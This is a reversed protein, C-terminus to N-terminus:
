SQMFVAMPVRDWHYESNTMLLLRNITNDQIGEAPTALQMKVTNTAINRKALATLAKAHIQGFRAVLGAEFNPRPARHQLGTLYRRAEGMLNVYPAFTAEITLRLVDLEDPPFAFTAQEVRNTFLKLGGHPDIGRRLQADLIESWRQAADTVIIAGTAQALYMAMEFNPEMKMLSFQGGDEAGELCDPQLSILPDSVKMAEIAQAATEATEGALDMGRELAMRVLADAPALLQGRKMDAEVVQSTRDNPDLRPPRAASRRQAMRMTQDRLHHDFHGPNPVLNVLGLDVLPMLTFLLALDKLVEQRYIRPNEVPSYEKRITGAHLFPHAIILEGFYLGAGVAFQNILEPHITGTFVARARGDPKPLLQLLDTDLPWFATFVSYLRSIREDTLNRRVDNWTGGPKLKLIDHAARWLALNRERISLETWSPRLHTPVSACCHKYPRDSGCGCAQGPKVIRAPKQLGEFPKETRGFEDQYLVQGDAMKAFLEGGFNWLGDEPPRLVEGLKPWDKAAVPEAQLWAEQGAAIYRRARAKLIANVRGVEVDTLKRSHIFTDTRVMSNRFNRAFTRKQLPDSEPHKAYELNTLILCFDRNLPFITQSGKLTISPDHDADPGVMPNYVTVPNDTVIFKVGADQASVIERVGETWITCNMAQIGQMEEMLENQTLTPYQARLWDLGKPTRVKQIDIYSFLTSFHRHWEAKDVGIFAKVAPAGRTDTAGFLRREIEDNVETGFFTSYLDREVFCRSTPSEFRSRGPVTEGQRNVHQPPSLDLYALTKRGPEFFGEQYWRPVYHNNRSQAM